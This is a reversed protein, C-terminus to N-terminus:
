GAGAELWGVTGEVDLLYRELVELAFREPLCDQFKSLRYGPLKALVARRVDPQNWFDPRAMRGIAERVTEHNVGDGEIRLQLNDAIVKWGGTIELEDRVARSACWWSLASGSRIGSAPWHSCQRLRVGEASL